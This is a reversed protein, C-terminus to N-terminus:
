PPRKGAHGRMAHFGIRTLAAIANRRGGSSTDSANPIISAYTYLQGQMAMPAGSFSRVYPNYVGDSSGLVQSGLIVKPITASNTRWLVDPRDPAPGPNFGTREPTNGHPDNWAYEENLLDGYMSGYTYASNNADMYAPAGSEKFQNPNMNFRYDASVVLSSAMLSVLIAAALIATLRKFNMM